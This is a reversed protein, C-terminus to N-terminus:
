LARLLLLLLFRLSLFGPVPPPGCPDLCCMRAPPPRDGAPCFGVADPSLRGGSHRGGAVRLQAGRRSIASGRCCATPLGWFLSALPHWAPEVFLEGGLLRWALVPAPGSGGASYLQVDQAQLASGRPAAALRGPCARRVPARATHARSLPQHYTNAPSGGRWGPWCGLRSRVQTVIIIVGATVPVRGSSRLPEEAAGPAPSRCPLSTVGCDSEAASRPREVAARM